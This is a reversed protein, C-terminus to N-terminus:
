PCGQRRWDQIRNWFLETFRELEHEPFLAAVKVRVAEKAEPSGFFDPEREPGLELDLLTM